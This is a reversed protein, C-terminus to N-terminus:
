VTSSALVSTFDSLDVESKILKKTENILAYINGSWSWCNKTGVVSRVKMYLDRKNQSLMESVVLPSGKLCKKAGYIKEKFWRNVFVISVPRPKKNDVRKKGIRYCYNIDGPAATIKFKSKLIDVVEPVLNEKEKESLGYLVLTNQRRDEKHKRIDNECIKIEDKVANLEERLANISEMVKIEFSEISQIDEEIVDRNTGPNIKNKLETLGGQVFKELKNLRETLEKNVDPKGRNKM